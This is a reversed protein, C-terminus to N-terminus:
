TSIPQPHLLTGPQPPRSPHTSTLLRGTSVLPVLNRPRMSPAPCTESSSGRTGSRVTVPLLLMQEGWPEKGCLCSPPVSNHFMSACGKPSM